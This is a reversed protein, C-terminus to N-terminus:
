FDGYKNKCMYIYIYICIYTNFIQYKINLCSFYHQRCFLPKKEKHCMDMKNIKLRFSSSMQQMITLASNFTFALDPYFLNRRNFTQNVLWMCCMELPNPHSQFYIFWFPQVRREMKQTQNTWFITSIWPWQQSPLTSLLCMRVLDM